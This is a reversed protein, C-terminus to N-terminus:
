TTVFVERAEEDLAGKEVLENFATSRSVAWKHENNDLLSKLKKRSTDERLEARVNTDLVVLASAVPYQKDKYVELNQHLVGALNEFLRSRISDQIAPNFEGVFRDFTDEVSHAHISAIVLKGVEALRLANYMEEETRLEGIVVVNVPERLADETAKKYSPVNDGLQRQVVRGNTSKHVFEIPNEITLVVRRSDTDRNIRNVVSAITTSKGAGAHGSVLFLGSQLKPIKEIISPLNLTALDPIENPVLRIAIGAKEKRPNSGFASFVHVRLMKGYNVGFDYSQERESMLTAFFLQDIVHLNRKKAEERTRENSGRYIRTLGRRKVTEQGCIKNLFFNFDDLDWTPLQSQKILQGRIRFDIIEGEILLIDQADVEPSTATLLMKQIKEVRETYEKDDLEVIYKDKVAENELLIAAGKIEKM